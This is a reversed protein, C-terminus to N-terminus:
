IIAFDISIRRGDELDRFKYEPRNKFPYMERVPQPTSSGNKELSVYRNLNEPSLFSGEIPKGGNTVTLGFDLKSPSWESALHEYYSTRIEVSSRLEEYNANGLSTWSLGM